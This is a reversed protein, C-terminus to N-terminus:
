SGTRVWLREGDAIFEITGDVDTRYVNDEALRGILQEMVEPNVHGFPTIQM